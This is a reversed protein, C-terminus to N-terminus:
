ILIDIISDSKQDTQSIDGNNEKDLSKGAKERESDRRKEREQDERILAEESPLYQYVLAEAKETQNAMQNALEQRRYVNEQMQIQQTRSVESARPLMVQLDPIKLSM